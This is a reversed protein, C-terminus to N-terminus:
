KIDQLSGSDQQLPKIGTNYVGSTKKAKHDEKQQCLMCLEDYFFIIVHWAKFKLLSAIITCINNLTQTSYLLRVAKFVHLSMSISCHQDPMGAQGVHDASDESQVSLGVEESSIERAEAHKAPFM